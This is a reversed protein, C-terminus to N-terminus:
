TNMTTSVFLELLMGAGVVSRLFKELHAGFCQVHVSLRTSRRRAPRLRNKKNQFHPLRHTDKLKTNMTTSVFIELLM